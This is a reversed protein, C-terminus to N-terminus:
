LKMVRIKDYLSSLNDLLNEFESKTVSLTYKPSDRFGKEVGLYNIRYPPDNQRKVGFTDSFIRWLNKRTSRVRSDIIIEITIRQEAM